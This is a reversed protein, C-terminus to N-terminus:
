RIGLSSGGSIVLAIALVGTVAAVLMIETSPSCAVPRWQPIEWSEITEAIAESALWPARRLRRGLLEGVTELPAHGCQRPSHGPPASLRQSQRRVHWATYTCRCDPGHDIIRRFSETWHSACTPRLGRSWQSRRAARSASHSRLHLTCAPEALAGPPLVAVLDACLPNARLQSSHRAAAHPRAHTPCSAAAAHLRANGGAKPPSPACTSRRCYCSALSLEVSPRSRGRLLIVATRGRPPRRVQWAKM